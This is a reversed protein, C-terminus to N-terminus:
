GCAKAAAIALKDMKSSYRATMSPQAHGLTAQASEISIADRLETAKTHRLCYPVFPQVKAAICARKVAKAFTWRTFRFLPGTSPCRRLILQAKPGFFLKRSLGRHANKHDTLDVVWIEGTTDIDAMKLGILESPRAGTALMLDFLDRHHTALHPRVAELHENDVAERRKPDHASTHGAKLPEIAELAQLTAVPILGHSVGWRWIHRVKNTCKNCFGRCWGVDVFKQRATRLNLPSFDKAPLMAFLERVPRMVGNFADSEAKRRYYTEAHNKFALLLEAVSLGTDDSNVKTALPDVTLGGASQSILKGYKIRSEESGYRGLLFDRGNIRVRAQPERGIVQHLLYSPLVNKKRPM